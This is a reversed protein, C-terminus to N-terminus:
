STGMGLVSQFGDVRLLFDGSTGTLASAAYLLLNGHRAPVRMPAFMYGNPGTYTGSTVTLDLDPSRDWVGTWPAFCWALLLGGTLTLGPNPYLRVTIAMLGTLWLGDGARTTGVGPDTQGYACLSTLPWENGNRTPTAPIAPSRTALQREVYFATPKPGGQAM